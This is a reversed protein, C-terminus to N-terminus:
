SSKLGLGLQALRDKVEEISKAGFNRINLLDAESQQVLQELTNIGQRKLCNYSRVSLELDEIPADLTKDKEAEDVVFITGAHEESSEEMLLVMHENIIQGALAVADVPKMSGRTEVEMRLKDYDTRQGVRTNQVEYTVRSIPSFISDIPIVGITDTSKKNRDASVYGRGTEVIMEMELKGDKNLTAIYHDTNVVEVDAPVEIDAATVTKPGKQKLRLVAPEEGHHRLVLEKLNLIVETVDERVGKITAFEHAVSDMRVSTIAAGPLSSLLVRRLSNGLTHGFGRELPEVTLHAMTDSVPEVSVQPKRIEIM